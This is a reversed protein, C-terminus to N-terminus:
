RIFRASVSRLVLIAVVLLVTSVLLRVLPALMVVHEQSLDLQELM